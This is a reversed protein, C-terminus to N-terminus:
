ALKVYGSGSFPEPVLEVLTKGSVLTSFRQPTPFLARFHFSLYQKLSSKDVYLLLQEVKRDMIAVAYLIHLDLKQQLLAISIGSLEFARPTSRSITWSCWGSRTSGRLGPSASKLMNGDMRSSEISSKKLEGIHKWPSERVVEYNLYLKELVDKGVANQRNQRGSM